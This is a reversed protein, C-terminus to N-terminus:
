KELPYGKSRWGNTGGDINITKTFGEKQLIQQAKGSRGGVACILYIEKEKHQILSPLEDTLQNLPISRARPVHGSQFESPTRVDIILLEGQDWRSKFEEVDITSLMTSEEPQTTALTVAPEEPSACAMAFLPILYLM